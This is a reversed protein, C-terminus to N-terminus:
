TRTAPKPAELWVEGAEGAEILGAVLKSKSVTEMKGDVAYAPSYYVTLPPQSMGGNHMRGVGDDFPQGTMPQPNAEPSSRGM